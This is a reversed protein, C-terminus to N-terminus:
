QRFALLAAASLYVAGTFASLVSQNSRLQSQKRLISGALAYCYFSLLWCVAFTGFLLLIQPAIYYQANIFQPFVSSFFLIAKPNCAGTIFGFRFLSTRSNLQNNSAQNLIFNGPRLTSAIAKLGILAL